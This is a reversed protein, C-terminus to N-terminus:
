RWVSGDKGQLGVISPQPTQWHRAFEAEREERTKANAAEFAKDYVSQTKRWRARVEAREVYNVLEQRTDEYYNGRRWLMMLGRQAANFPVCAATALWNVFRGLAAFAALLAVKIHTLGVYTRSVLWISAKRRYVQKWFRQEM